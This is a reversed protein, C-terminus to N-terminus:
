DIEYVGEKKFRMYTELIRKGIEEPNAKEAECLLKLGDPTLIRGMNKDRLYIQYDSYEKNTLTKM